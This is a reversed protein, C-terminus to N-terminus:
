KIVATNTKLAKMRAKIKPYRDAESFYTLYLKYLQLAKTYDKAEEAARARAELEDAKINMLNKLHDQARDAFISGACSKAIQNM